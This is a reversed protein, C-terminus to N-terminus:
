HINQYICPEYKKCCLKIYTHIHASVLQTSVRASYYQCRHMDEHAVQACNHTYFLTSSWLCICMGTCQIKIVADTVMSMSLLTTSTMSLWLKTSTHKTLDPSVKFGIMATTPVSSIVSSTPLGRSGYNYAYSFHYYLLIM